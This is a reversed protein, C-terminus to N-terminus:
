LDHLTASHLQRWNGTVEQDKRGFVKMMVSNEFMGLRHEESVSIVSWTCVGRYLLLLLLGTSTPIGLRRFSSIINLVSRLQCERINIDKNEEHRCNGYCFLHLFLVNNL